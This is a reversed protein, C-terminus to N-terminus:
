QKGQLGSMAQGARRAGAGPHLVEDVDGTPGVQLLPPSPPGPPPTGPISPNLHPVPLGVSHGVLTAAEDGKLTLVPVLKWQALSCHRASSPM